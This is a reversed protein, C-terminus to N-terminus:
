KGDCCLLVKPSLTIAYDLECIYIFFIAGWFLSLLSLSQNNLAQSNGFDRSVRKNQAPYFHKHFEAGQEKASRIHIFRNSINAMARHIFGPNKRPAEHSTGQAMGGWLKPIPQPPQLTRMCRAWPHSPHSRALSTAGPLRSGAGARAATHGRDEVERWGQGWRQGKESM